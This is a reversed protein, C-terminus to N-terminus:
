RGPKQSDSSQYSGAVPEQPTHHPRVQGWLDAYLRNQRYWHYDATSDHPGEYTDIVLAVAYSGPSCTEGDALPNIGGDAVAAGAINDRTILALEEAYTSAEARWDRGSARGPQTEYRIHYPDDAAYSYCNNSLQVAGADNWRLPDYRPEAGTPRPARWINPNRKM